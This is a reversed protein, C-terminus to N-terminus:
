AEKIKKNTKMRYPLLLAFASSTKIIAMRYKKAFETNTDLDARGNFPVTVNYWLNKEHHGINGEAGFGSWAARFQREVEELVGADGAKKLDIGAFIKESGVMWVEGWMKLQFSSGDHSIHFCPPTLYPSKQDTSAEELWLECQLNSQVRMQWSSMLVHSSPLVGWWCTKGDPRAKWGLGLVLDRLRKLYESKSFSQIEVAKPPDSKVSTVASLCLLSEVVEGILEQSEQIRARIRNLMKSINLARAELFADSRCFRFLMQEWIEDFESMGKLKEVVEGEVAALRMAQAFREDWATFDPFQELASYVQPYQIQMCVLAFSVDKWAKFDADDDTTRTKLILLRILSLTNILRKLSRPNTGVSELAYSILADCLKSDAREKEDLYGIEKLSDLLFGDIRYAGVPMSFPLQIIKDFFSRFERENEVSMEGFKPKLGKVVVGYDIALVFICNRLDFINKLLELVQVAVPPDIRDLDDIFFVFGKKEKGVCSDVLKQLHDKLEEIQSVGCAVNPNDSIEATAESAKRIETGIEGLGVVKGAINGFSILAVKAFSKIVRARSETATAAACGSIQAIIGALLRLVAQEPNSVVSYQWTNIWVGFYPAGPDDVLKKKLANMLSTKGSGWEGQLAITLPSQANKIFETLADGYARMNLQDEEAKAPQDIINSKM